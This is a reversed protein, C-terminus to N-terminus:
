IRRTTWALWAAVVVLAVSLIRRISNKLPGATLWPRLQGALMVIGAHVATAIMVYTMGLQAFQISFNPDGSDRRLFGPVVSIFFMISKPNFVNSFFGRWFLSGLAGATFDPHDKDDPKWAEWALFLIYAVGTWRLVEYILPVGAILAGLGAAAIVAHVSLGAAVGATALLGAMRGRDLTLAALYGM